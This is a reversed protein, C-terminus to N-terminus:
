TSQRTRIFRAVIEAGHKTLSVLRKKDRVFIPLGLERELAIIQQSIGPQSTNLAIAAKSISLGNTAVERLYRLQQLNM